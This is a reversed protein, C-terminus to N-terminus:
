DQSGFRRSWKILLQEIDADMRTGRGGWVLMHTFDTISSGDVEHVAKFGMRTYFKVLKKHYLPTDNIALLEARVCGADFGHRVTVAGLFIGLGFLPRNPVELTARSMRMSDLHLVAGGPWPRIAGEARGLEVDGDGGVRTATVRFLPGLTSLRMRLGQARSTAMIDAMTPLRGTGPTPPSPAAM